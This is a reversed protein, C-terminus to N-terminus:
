MENSCLTLFSHITKGPIHYVITSHRHNVIYPSSDRLISVFPWEDPVSCEDVPDNNHSHMISPSGPEFGAQCFSILELNQIDAALADPISENTTQTTPTTSITESDIQAKANEGPIRAGTSLPISVNNPSLPSYSMM